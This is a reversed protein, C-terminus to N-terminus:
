GCGSSNFAVDTAEIEVIGQSGPSLNSNAIIASFDGSVDSLREWYCGFGDISDTVYIGPQVDDGVLQTGGGFNPITPPPVTPAETPPVTTTPPTYDSALLAKFGGHSDCSADENMQIVTADQCEGYPALWEAVDGAGSCTASFDTNDSFGGGLCSAVNGAAIAAERSLITTTTEVPTTLTTTAIAPSSIAIETVSTAGVTVDSTSDTSSTSTNKKTPGIAIGLVILAALVVGAWTGIQGVLPLRRFRRWM